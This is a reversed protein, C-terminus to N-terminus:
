VGAKFAERYRLTVTSEPKGNVMSMRIRNIGPKLPFFVSDDSVREWLSGRMESESTIDQEQPRTTITVKEGFQGRISIREGTDDNQILLDEGPGTVEWIPWAEADGQISLVYAGQVTSDSLLVPFFAYAHATGRGDAISPSRGPTGEWRYETTDTNRTDGDFFEGLVDGPEILVDSITIHTGKPVPASRDGAHFSVNFVTSGPNTILASIRVPVGESAEVWESGTMWVHTVGPGPTVTVSCMYVGEPLASPTEVHATPTTGAYSVTAVVGSSSTSLTVAARGMIGLGARFGHLGYSGRPNPHLNRREVRPASGTIFAKRAAAVRREDVRTEGYWMPDPCVFTLALKQGDPADEGAGYDGQLGSELWGFRSRAQGDPHVVRIEVRGDCLRELTRRDERREGYGGGLLLPIMVKPTTARVHRLVGGGSALDAVTLDRPSWGLGTAGRMLVFRSARNSLVVDEGNGHLSIIPKM